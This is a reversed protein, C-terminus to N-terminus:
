SLRRILKQVARMVSADSEVANVQELPVWRADNADSSATFDLSRARLLIRVDFHAHAPEGKGPNPPIDHIDLDLLAGPGEDPAADSIGTEEAVERLAAAFIDADDHDVHGGPQLWRHFKSHLVLLVSGGDPSLVFTSATFHGPEFHRRSFPNGASRALAMMRERHAEEEADAPRHDLLLQKLHALRDM